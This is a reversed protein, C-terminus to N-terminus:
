AITHTTNAPTIRTTIKNITLLFLLRGIYNGPRKANFVTQQDSSKKCWAVEYSDAGDANVTKVQIFKSIFEQERSKTKWM